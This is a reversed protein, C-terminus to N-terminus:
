LRQWKYRGEMVSLLLNEIQMSANANYFLDREARNISDIASIIAGTDYYSAAKATNAAETRNIILKNKGCKVALMDRFVIKMVSLFDKIKKQYANLTESWSLIDKVGGLNLALSYALKEMDAFGSDAAMCEARGLLGGSAAAIVQGQV